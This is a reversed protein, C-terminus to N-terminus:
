RLDVVEVGPYKSKDFTFIGDPANVNPKLSNVLYIYRNGSTELVETSFLTKANKDILIYVKHFPKSKDLPTMEIESLTKGAVKKDGNLKYLFDKDYFNTFLKQPTITGSSGDLKNITVENTNKDYSWVTTGDCWIEQGGFSIRYKTSKMTVTGKQTSLVKDNANEVKYTFTAQVTKYSKFKSSVADLLKKAEPDNNQSFSTIALCLFALAVYIKKMAYIKQM